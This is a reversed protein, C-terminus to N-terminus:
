ANGGRNAYNAKMWERYRKGGRVSDVWDRNGLYWTVTKRLGSELGERPKWGLDRRIKAIDMAYRRDHGPRDAVHEILQEHPRHPSDPRLEDLLRCITRVLDINSPQNGGGINYM